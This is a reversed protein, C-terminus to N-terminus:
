HPSVPAKCGSLAIHEKCYLIIIYLLTRTALNYRIQRTISRWLLSNVSALERLIPARLLILKLVLYTTHVIRLYSARILSALLLCYYITFFKNIDKSHVTM